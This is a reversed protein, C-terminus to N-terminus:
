ARGESREARRQAGPRPEVLRLVPIFGPPLGILEFGQPSQPTDEGPSVPGFESLKRLAADLPSRDGAM